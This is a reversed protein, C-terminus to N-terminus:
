VVVYFVYSLYFHIFANSVTSAMLVMIQESFFSILEIANSVTLAMLVMIQESFFTILEINRSPWYHSIQGTM